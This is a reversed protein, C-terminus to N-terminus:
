HTRIGDPHDRLFASPQRAQRRYQRARATERLARPAQAVPGVKRIYCSTIHPHVSQLPVNSAPLLFAARRGPEGRGEGRQETRGRGMPKRQWTRSAPSQHAPRALDHASLGATLPQGPLMHWGSLLGMSPFGYLLNQVASFTPCTLGLGVERASFGPPMQTLLVTLCFWVSEVRRTLVPQDATTLRSQGLRRALIQSLFSYIQDENPDALHLSFYVQTKQFSAGLLM